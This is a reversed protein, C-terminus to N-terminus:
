KFGLCGRFYWVWFTLDRPFDNSWCLTHMRIHKDRRWVKTITSARRVYEKFGRRDVAQRLRTWKLRNRLRSQWRGRVNPRHCMPRTWWELRRGWEWEYSWFADRRGELCWVVRIWKFWRWYLMGLAVM